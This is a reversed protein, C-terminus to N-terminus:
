NTSVIEIWDVRKGCWQKAARDGRLTEVRPQVNRQVFAIGGVLDTHRSGSLWPQRIMGDLTVIEGDGNSKIFGAKHWSDMLGLDGFVEAIPSVEHYVRFGAAYSGRLWVDYEGPELKPRVVAYERPETREVFEPHWLLRWGYPYRLWGTGLLLTVKPGGLAARLNHGSSLVSAISRRKCDLAEYGDLSNRGLAIRDQPPDETKRWVRYHETEFDIEFNGPARSGGARKRELLVKFLALHGPVYDDFEPTHPVQEPIPGSLLGRDPQWPGWSEWPQADRLFYKAYDERENVLVPGKGDLREGLDILEQFREKPTNWAGTYVAGDSAVIGLVLVSGALVAVVQAPRWGFLSYFGFAAAIAFAPSLVLYAKADFYISYRRSVYITGAAIGAVLLPLEWRRRKIAVTVGIAVMVIALTIMPWAFVPFAPDSHRYDPHLWIGFAEVWPIETYLNGIQAPNELLKEGSRLFRASDLLTPLSIVAAAIGWGGILAVGHAPRLRKTALLWVLVGIGLPGLWAGAGLGLVNLAAGACIAAPVFGRWDPRYRMALFAAAAAAYIALALEIEKAGGQALYSYPLFGVGSCFGGIAAAWRPLDLSRLLAYGVLALLSMALAIIPSWLAFSEVGTLMSGTLPWMDSGLPYGSGFLGEVSHFSSLASDANSAGSQKLLEIASLHVSPDNNLVYGVVGIRGSGIIPALGGLYAVGVCAGAWMWGRERLLSRLEPRGRVLMVAGAMAAALLLIIGVLVPLGAQVPLNMLSLGALFGVPLVLAGLRLGAAREVLLGILASIGSLIGPVAIWALVMMLPSKLNM